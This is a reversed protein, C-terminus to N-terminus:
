ESMYLFLGFCCSRAKSFSSGRVAPLGGTLNM